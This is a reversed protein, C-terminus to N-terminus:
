RLKAVPSDLRGGRISSFCDEVASRRVAMKASSLFWLRSLFASDVRDYSCYATKRRDVFLHSKSDQGVTEYIKIKNASAMFIHIGSVAIRGNKSSDVATTDTSATRDASSVSRKRFPVCIEEM